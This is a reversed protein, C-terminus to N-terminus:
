ETPPPNTTSSDAVPASRILAPRCARDSVREAGAVFQQGSRRSRLQRDTAHHQGVLQGPTTVRRRARGPQGLDPVGHLVTHPAATLVVARQGTPQLHAAAGRFQVRVSLSSCKTVSGSRTSSQTLRNASATFSSFADPPRTTVAGVLPAAPM